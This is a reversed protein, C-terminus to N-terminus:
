QALDLVAFHFFIMLFAGVFLRSVDFVSLELRREPTLDEIASQNLKINAGYRM